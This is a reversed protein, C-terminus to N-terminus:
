LDAAPPAQDILIQLDRRHYIGEIGEVLVAPQRDWHAVMPDLRVLESQPRKRVSADRPLVTGTKGSWRVLVRTGPTLM